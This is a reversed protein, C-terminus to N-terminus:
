PNVTSQVEEVLITSDEEVAAITVKRSMESNPKELRIRSIMPAIKKVNMKRAVARNVLVM